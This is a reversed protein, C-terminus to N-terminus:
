KKSTVLDAVCRQLVLSNLKWDARERVIDLSMKRMRSRLEDDLLLRVIGRALEESDGPPVLYGNSGELVWEKNGPIATVVVPLGCAMAELLSASTGDSFSTSVYVDAASLIRPLWDNPVWGSFKVSDEVGLSRALSKHYDMLPGDGVILFRSDAQKGLIQPIARILYEVGCREIHRRTSLVIKKNLWGLEKRLATPDQPRFKGIDIGWPFCRIKRPDCGLELLDRRQVESDVIVADARRITLKGFMRLVRSKKAEIQLDTGWINVLFPHFRALACYLGSERTLWNGYLLNPRILRVIIAVRITRIATELPWTLIRPLRNPIPFDRIPLLRGKPWPPKSTLSDERTFFAILVNYKRNLAENFRREYVHGAGPNSRPGGQWTNLETPRPTIVADATSNDITGPLCFYLITKTKVSQSSNLPTM